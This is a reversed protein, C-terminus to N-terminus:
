TYFQEGFSRFPPWLRGDAPAPGFDGDFVLRGGKNVVDLLTNPSKSVAASQRM